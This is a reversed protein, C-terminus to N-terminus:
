RRKRLFLLGACSLTVVCIPEPVTTVSAVRFGTILSLADENNPNFPLRCSSALAEVESDYSGGRRIRDSTAMFTEGYFPSELMEWVNGMMDATGNIEDSGSGVDWSEGLLDQGLQDKEYNWGEGSQGDGELPIEDKKTAYTQLKEGNWYAAKVWENESPLFYVADKHRYRNTGGAAAEESPWAAFSNGDISKPETFKYAVHHGTSTNLWNVFQAAQYWSKGVVPLDKDDTEFDDRSIKSIDDGGLVGLCAQFKNWQENTIECIDMRYDYGVYGHDIEKPNSEKTITVFDISFLTAESGFIDASAVPSMGLCITWVFLIQFGRKVDPM